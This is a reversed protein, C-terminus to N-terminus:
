AEEKQAELKKEKEARWQQSGQNTNTKARDCIKFSTKRHSREVDRLPNESIDV